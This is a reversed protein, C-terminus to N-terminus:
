DNLNSRTWSYHLLALCKGPNHRHLHKCLEGTSFHHTHCPRTIHPFSHVFATGLLAQTTAQELTVVCLLLFDALNFIFWCIIFLCKFCLLYWCIHSIYLLQELILCWKTKIEGLDVIKWTYANLAMANEQMLSILLDLVKNKQTHTKKKKKKFIQYNVIKILLKVKLTNTTLYRFIFALTCELFIFVFEM